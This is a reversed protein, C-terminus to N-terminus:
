NKRYEIQPKCLPEDDVSNQPYFSYLNSALLPPIHGAAYSHYAAVSTHYARPETLASIELSRSVTALSAVLLTGKM